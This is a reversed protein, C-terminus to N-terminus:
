SITDAFFVIGYNISVFLLMKSAIRVERRFTILFRRRFTNVNTKFIFKRIANEILDWIFLFDIKGGAGSFESFGRMIKGDILLKANKM